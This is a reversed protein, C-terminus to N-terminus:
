ILSRYSITSVCMPGKFNRTSKISRNDGDLIQRFAVM